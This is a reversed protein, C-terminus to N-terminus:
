GWISLYISLYVTQVATTTVICSYPHVVHISVLYMSFFSSALQVLISCAINFLEQFCWGMLCCSFPWRGGMELAMWILHVLCKPCQQLLLSSSMLSTSMHVEECPCALAPCGVFRYSCCSQVSVPHLTSSRHPAIFSLFSHHSLTLSSLALLVVHHHDGYYLHNSSLVFIGGYQLIHVCFNQAINWYLLM